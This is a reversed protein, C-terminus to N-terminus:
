SVMVMVLLVRSARGFCMFMWWGKGRVKKIGEPYVHRMRQYIWANVKELKILKQNQDCPSFFASFGFFRTDTILDLNQKRLTERRPCQNGLLYGAKGHLSRRDVLPLRGRYRIIVMLLFTLFLGPFITQNINM